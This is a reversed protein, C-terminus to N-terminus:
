KKWDIHILVDNICKDLETKIDREWFRFVTYEMDILQRTIEDDRQMNREIKPIWFGRNSKITERKEVWNYGHWFEGDIFIALKYKQISIDPKGPLKKSNIRYRVGRKWLAKRFLLEPKTNKGRIKSMIKSRKKTTYFGSEENFRPVKIKEEKYVM